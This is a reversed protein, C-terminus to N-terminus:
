IKRGNHFINKVKFLYVNKPNVRFHCFEASVKTDACQSLELDKIIQEVRAKRDSDTFESSLRLAASFALNERVTLTGM